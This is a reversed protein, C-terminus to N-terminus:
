LSIGSNQTLIEKGQPPEWTPQFRLMRLLEAFGPPSLSVGGEAGSLPFRTLTLSRACVQGPRRPPPNRRSLAHAFQVDTQGSRLPSHAGDEELSM